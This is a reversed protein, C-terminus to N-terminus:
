VPFPFSTLRAGARGKLSVEKSDICMRFERTVKLKRAYVIKKGLLKGNRGDGNRKKVYM